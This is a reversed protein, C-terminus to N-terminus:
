FELVPRPSVPTEYTGIGSIRPAADPNPELVCASLALMALAVVWKM